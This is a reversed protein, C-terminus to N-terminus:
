RFARSSSIGYKYKTDGRAFSTKVPALYVRDQTKATRFSKRAVEESPSDRLTMKQMVTDASTQGVIFKSSTVKGEFTDGQFAAEDSLQEIDELIPDTIEFSTNNLMANAPLKSNILNVVAIRKENDPVVATLAFKSKSLISSYFPDVIYGETDHYVGDKIKLLSAKLTDPDINLKLGIEAAASLDAVETSKFGLKYLYDKENEVLFEILNYSNMRPRTKSFKLKNNRTDRAYADGWIDQQFAFEDLDWYNKIAYQTYPTDEILFYHNKIIGIKVMPLTKDGYVEFQKKNTESKVSICIKCKDAVEKLRSKPITACKFLVKAKDLHEDCVGSNKLAVLLCNEDLNQKGTFNTYIDYRELNCSSMNHFYPFFAGNPKVAKDPLREFIATDNGRLLQVIETRSNPETIEVDDELMAMIEDIADASLTRIRGDDFRIVYKGRRNGQTFFEILERPNNIGAMSVEFSEGGQLAGIRNKIQTLRINQAEARRRFRSLVAGGLIRGANV